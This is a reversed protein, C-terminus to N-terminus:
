ALWGWERAEGRDEAVSRIGAGGSTAPANKHNIHEQPLPAEECSHRDQCLSCGRCGVVIVLRRERIDHGFGSVQVAKDCAKVLGFRLLEGSFEALTDAEAADQALGQLVEFLDRAM